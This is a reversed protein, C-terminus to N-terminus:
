GLAAVAEIAAQLEEPTNYISPTLRPYTVAYSITSAIISQRELHDVVANPSHGDVEFCVIGASLEDSLPTHLTVHSTESRGEKLQRTLGQTREAVRAKGVNQHFQFADAMAM